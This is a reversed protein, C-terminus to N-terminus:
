RVFLGRLKQAADVAGKVPDGPPMSPGAGAATANLGGPPAPTQPALAPTVAAPGAGAAAMPATVAEAAQAAAQSEGVTPLPKDVLSKLRTQDLSAELAERLPGAEGNIRWVVNLVRLAASRQPSDEGYSGMSVSGSGAPLRAANIQLVVSASQPVVSIAKRKETLADVQPKVSDRHRKTIAQAAANLSQVEAMRAEAAAKDGAKLAANRAYDAATAKRELADREAAQGPPLKLAALIEDDIQQLQARRRNSEAPDLRLLYDMRVNPSFAGVKTEKCLVGLGPLQRFDYRTGAAEAGRPVPPLAAVLAAMAREHFEAEAPRVERVGDVCDAHAAPLAYAALGVLLGRLARSSARLSPSM